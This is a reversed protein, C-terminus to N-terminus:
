LDLLFGLSFFWLFGSVRPFVMSVRPFVMSVILFSTHLPKRLDLMGGLSHM